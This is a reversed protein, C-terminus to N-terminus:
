AAIGKQVGEIRRRSKSELNPKVVGHAFGFLGLVLGRFPSRILRHALRRLSSAPFPPRLSGATKAIHPAFPRGDEEDYGEHWPRGPFGFFTTYHLIAPHAKASDFEERSYYFNPRRLRLLERYTCLRVPSIMNFQQPLVALDRQMLMCILDNDPFELLGDYAIMGNRFKQQWGGARFKALDILLVGSNIYVDDRELGLNRLYRWSRCDNVAGIVSSALDFRWLSDLNSTVITDCDLYIIRDISEDVLSDVFLRSFASLTFRKPDVEKGLLMRFDPMPVIEVSQGHDQVLAHIASTTTASLGEGVIHISIDSDHHHALLSHLSAMLVDRFGEDSAYLFHMTPTPDATTM